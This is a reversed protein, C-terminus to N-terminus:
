LTALLETVNLIRCPFQFSRIVVDFTTRLDKDNSLITACYPLYFAKVLDHRKARYRPSKPQRLVRDYFAIQFVTVFAAFPPCVEVFNKIEADSNHRPPIVDDDESQKRFAREYFERSSKWYMGDTRTCQELWEDVSSPRPVNAALSKTRGVELTMEIEDQSSLMQDRNSRRLKSQSWLRRRAAERDISENFFPVNRWDFACPNLDFTRALRTMMWHPPLLMGTERVLERLPKKFRRRLKSDSINFLESFTVEPLILSFKGRSRAQIEDFKDSTVIVSLADTDAVVRTNARLEMLPATM